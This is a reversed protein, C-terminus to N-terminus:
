CAAQSVTGYFSCRFLQTECLSRPGVWRSLTCLGRSRRPKGSWTETFLNRFIKIQGKRRQGNILIAWSATNICNTHLGKLMTGSLLHCWKTKVLYFTGITPSFYYQELCTTVTLLEVEWPAPICWGDVQHSVAYRLCFATIESYCCVRFCPIGWQNLNEELYIIIGLPSFIFPVKLEKGRYEISALYIPGLIITITWEPSSMSKQQQFFHM